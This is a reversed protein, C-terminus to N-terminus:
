NFVEPARCKFNTCVQGVIGGADNSCANVEPINCVIPPSNEIMSQNGIKLSDEFDTRGTEQIVLGAM